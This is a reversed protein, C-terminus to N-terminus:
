LEPRETTELEKMTRSYKNLEIIPDLNKSEIQCKAETLHTLDNITLDSM